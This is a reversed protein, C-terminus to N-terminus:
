FILERVRGSATSFGDGNVDDFEVERVLGRLTAEDTVLEGNLRINRLAMRGVESSLYPDFLEIDRVRASKPGVVALYSYPYKDRYLTLDIDEFTINGINAGLEFAGFSGRIPDSDKYVALGDIPSTLDVAINEFYINDGSGVAGREPATGLTYRPTQYYLKFTRIGRVNSIIADILACDVESGDDYYYRGPEIRIAKYRSDDSLELDEVLVTRIPGFDVSSDQWDYSNLAVLDDGVQGKVDRCLLRETNGNIHLGDAYCSDFRIREFVVDTADGVQASFGATHAFTVDVLTLSDLNNFFFLTSVGYFSRNADYKGSRGYGARETRSEEFRGGVISINCDREIGVIPAHTGDATSANRLMLTDCDPTLVVRAGHAEIRRNSGVVVTRDIYYPEDRSPIVVVEHEDLATQLADSWIERDDVVRVLSRYNDLTVKDSLEAIKRLNEARMNDLTARIQLKDM